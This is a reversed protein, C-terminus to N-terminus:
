RASGEDIQTLAADGLVTDAVLAPCIANVRINREALEIALSRTLGVIAHKSMVYPGAFATGVVGLASSVLAISGGGRAELHPLAVMATNWTGAVNVGIIADFESATCTTPRRSRRSM